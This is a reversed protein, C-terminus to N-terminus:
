TSRSSGRASSATSCGAASRRTRGPPEGEADLVQCFVTGEFGNALGTATFRSNVPAGESPTDIVLHSMVSLDDGAVVPESTPIGFVQDIPNAETRFQVALSELGTEALDDAFVDQLTRIVQEVSLQAELASMGAPRERVAPDVVVTVVGSEPGSLSVLSGEPWLTRYDPDSPAAMLALLPDPDGDERYLAAQPADPGDPGPGLVYVRTPPGAQPAGTPAGDEPEEVVIVRDDVTAGPGEGGSPDDTAAQFFYAGPELGSVDISTEWPTLRTSDQAMASGELVVDGDGDRVQWPVTAEFSLAVGRATFSGQVHLGEVPDFINVPSLVEESPARTFGQDPAPVGLVSAAEDGDGLYFVVPAEAGAGAQLTYVVQQIALEAEVDPVGAPLDVLDDPIVVGFSGDDGVGDFSWDTLPVPWPSRYDPDLAGDVTTALDLVDPREEQTLPRYERFLRPGVPTEGVYYIATATTDPGGQTPEEPTTSPTTSTTAPATPTDAPDASTGGGPQAVLAITM